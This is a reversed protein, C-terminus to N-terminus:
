GQSIAYVQGRPSRVAMPTWATELALGLLFGFSPLAPGLLEAVRAM